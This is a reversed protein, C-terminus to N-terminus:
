KKLGSCPEGRMAAPPPNRGREKAREVMQAHHKDLYSKCEDYTKMGRLTDRHTNREEPSMMAWGPTMRPGAMPGGRMGHRPGYGPGSAASGPGPGSAPQALVSAAAAMWVAASVAAFLLSTRM